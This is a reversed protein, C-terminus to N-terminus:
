VLISVESSQGSHEPQEPKFDKAQLKCDEYSCAKRPDPGGALLGFHEVSGFASADRITFYFIHDPGKEKLPDNTITMNYKLFGEYFKRYTRKSSFEPCKKAAMSFAGTPKPSSWGIEGIWFTDDDRGTIQKIKSRISEFRQMLDCKESGTITSNWGEWCTASKIAGKCQDKYYPFDNVYWPEWFSYVNFSWAWRKGYAKSANKLYTYVMAQHDDKFPYFPGSVLAAASFVGTVPIASYGPGMRDMDAIRSKTAEWYYGGKWIDQICHPFPKIYDKLFLQDLENGIALGLIHEPGLMQMIEMTRNWDIADETKNCTVGAGVLVKANNRKVWDVINRAAPLRGDESWGQQWSKFLRISKVPEQTNPWVDPIQTNCWQFTIDDINLGKQSANVMPISDMTSKCAFAANAGQFASLGLFAAKVFM